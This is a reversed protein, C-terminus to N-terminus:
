LSIREKSGNKSSFVIYDCSFEKGEWKDNGRHKWGKGKKVYAVTVHPRYESYKNTYEIDSRMKENMKVLDPSDVSIVVVDFKLPNTFVEIKGLKVNLNGDQAIKKVEESGESHIGYLVTAHMEDERGFSPDTQSVFIDKDPIKARGWDQIQEALPSPLDIHVSSFDYQTNKMELFKRFSIMM